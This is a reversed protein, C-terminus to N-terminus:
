WSPSHYSPIPWSLDPFCCSSMAAPSQLYVLLAVPPCPQLSEQYVLLAVPPCPLLNNTGVRIKEQYTETVTGEKLAKLERLSMM